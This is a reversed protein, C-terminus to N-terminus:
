SAVTGAYTTKSRFVPVLAVTGRGADNRAADPISCVVYKAKLWVPRYTAKAAARENVDCTKKYSVEVLDTVSMPTPPPVVLM